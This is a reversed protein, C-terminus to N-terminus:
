KNQDMMKIFAEPSLQLIEDAKKAEEAREKEKKVLRDQKEKKQKVKVDLATFKEIEGAIFKDEPLNDSLPINEIKFDKVKGTNELNFRIVGLYEGGMSNRVIITDGQKEAKNTIGRGHGAVVLSVDSFDNYRLLNQTGSKGFHSLVIIFDSKGKLEEVIKKLSPIPKNITIRRNQRVSDNMMVGPTAATIGITIGDIKKLIYPTFITKNDDSLIQLNSSVYSMSTRSLAKVLFKFDLGFEGEGLTVADYKMYDMSRLILSARQEPITRTNFFM